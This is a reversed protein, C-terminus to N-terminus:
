VPRCVKLQLTTGSRAANQVAAAAPTLLRFPWFKINLIKSSITLSQSTTAQSRQLQALTIRNHGVRWVVLAGPKSSDRGLFIEFFRRMPRISARSAGSGLFALSTDATIFIDGALNYQPMKIYHRNQIQIRLSQM